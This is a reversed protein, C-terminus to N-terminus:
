VSKVKKNISIILGDTIWPNVIWYRKSFNPQELKFGM